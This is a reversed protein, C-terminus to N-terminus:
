HACHIVVRPDQNAVRLVCLHLFGMRKGLDNGPITTILHLSTQSPLSGRSLSTDQRSFLDNRPLNQNEAPLTQHTMLCM